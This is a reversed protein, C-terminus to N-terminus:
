PAGKFAVIGAGYTGAVDQAWVPNFTGTASTTRSDWCNGSLNSDQTFGSPTSTCNNAQAVQTVVFDKANTTTISPGTMTTSSSQNAVVGSADVVSSPALGAVEYIMGRYNGGGGISNMHFTTTGATAPNVYWIEYFGVGTTTGSGGAVKTFTDGSSDTVSLGGGSAPNLYVVIILAGGSTATITTDTGNNTPGYQLQHTITPTTGGGSQAHVMGNSNFPLGQAWCSLALLFIASRM